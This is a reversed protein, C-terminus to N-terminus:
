YDIVIDSTHDGAGSGGNNLDWYRYFRFDHNIPLPYYVRQDENHSQIEITATHRPARPPPPRPLPTSFHSLLKLMNHKGIYGDDGDLLMLSFHM